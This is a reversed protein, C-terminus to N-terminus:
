NQAVDSASANRSPQKRPFDIVLHSPSAPNAASHPMNASPQSFAAAAVDDRISM